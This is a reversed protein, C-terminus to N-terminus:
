QKRSKAPEPEDEEEPVEERDNWTSSLDMWAQALTSAASASEADLERAIFRETASEMINGAMGLCWDAREWWSEIDGASM